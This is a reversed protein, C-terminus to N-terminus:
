AKNQCYNLIYKILILQADKIHLNLNEKFYKKDYCEFRFNKNGVGNLKNNKFIEIATDYHAFIKINEFRQFFTKPNEVNLIRNFFETQKSLSLQFFLFYLNDHLFITLVLLYFKKLIM